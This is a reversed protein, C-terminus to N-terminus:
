SDARGRDFAGAFGAVAHDRRASGAPAFVRQDAGIGGGARAVAGGRARPDARREDEVERQVHAEPARVGLIEFFDKRLMIEGGSMTLFFVGAEALEDLLKKYEATTMEGHDDHDLYCHVCRENCRYTLDLQVTLPIGMALAKEGMEQMLSSM